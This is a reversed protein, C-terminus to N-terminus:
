VACGLGQFQWVCVYVVVNISHPLYVGLAAMILTRLAAIGSHALSLFTNALMDDFLFPLLHVSVALDGYPNTLWVAPGPSQQM